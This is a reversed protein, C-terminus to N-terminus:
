LVVLITWNRSGKIEGTIAYSKMSLFFFLIVAPAKEERVKYFGRYNRRVNSPDKYYFLKFYLFHM